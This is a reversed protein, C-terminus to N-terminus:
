SDLDEIRPLVVGDNIPSQGMPGLGACNAENRKARPIRNGFRNESNPQGGAVIPQTLVLDFGVRRVPSSLELFESGVQDSLELMENRIAPVTMKVVALAGADQTTWFIRLFDRRAQPVKVPFPVVQGIEDHHWIVYMQQRGKWVFGCHKCLAFRPLMKGRRSDIAPDAALVSEPLLVSEIVQNPRDLLEFIQSLVYCIIWNPRIQAFALIHVPRFRKLTNM